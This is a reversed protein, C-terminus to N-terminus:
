GHREPLPSIEAEPLEGAGSVWVRFQRAPEGVDRALRSVLRGPTDALERASGIGALALRGAIEATLGLLRLLPEEPAIEFEGSPDTVLLAAMGAPVDQRFGTQRSWEYQEVLRRRTGPGTYRILM